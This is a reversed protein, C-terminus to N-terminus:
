MIKLFSEGDVTTLEWKKGQRRLTDALLEMNDDNVASARILMVNGTLIVESQSETGSNKMKDFQSGVYIISLLDVLIPLDIDNIPKYDCARTRLFKPKYRIRGSRMTNISGKTRALNKIIFIRLFCLKPKNICIARM